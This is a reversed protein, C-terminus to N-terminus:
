NVTDLYGIQAVVAHTSLIEIASHTIYFFIRSIIRGSKLAIYGSMISFQAPTKDIGKKTGGYIGDFKSNFKKYFIM